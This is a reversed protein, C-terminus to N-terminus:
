IAHQALLVKIQLNSKERMNGKRDSCLDVSGRTRSSAPMTWFVQLGKLKANDNKLSKAM